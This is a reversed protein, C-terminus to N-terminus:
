KKKIKFKILFGFQNGNKRRQGASVEGPWPSEFRSNVWRRLSVTHGLWRLLGNDKITETVFSPLPGGALYDKSFDPVGVAPPLIPNQGLPYGPM